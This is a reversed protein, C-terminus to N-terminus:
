GANRRLRRPAQRRQRGAIRDWDPGNSGSARFDSGSGEGDSSTDGNQGDAKAKGDRTDDGNEGSMGVSVEVVVPAWLAHDDFRASKAVDVLRERQFRIFHDDTTQTLSDYLPRLHEMSTFDSYANQSHTAFAPGCLGDALQAAKLDAACDFAEAQPFGDRMDLHGLLCHITVHLLQRAVSDRDKRFDAVVQEPDFWLTRGDTSLPGPIPRVKEPLAYIAELLIPSIHSIRRRSHLLIKRALEEAGTHTLAM